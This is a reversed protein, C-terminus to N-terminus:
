FDTYHEHINFHAVLLQPRTVPELRHATRIV